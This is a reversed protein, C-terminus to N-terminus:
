SGADLTCPAGRAPRATPRLLNAASMAALVFVERNIFLSAPEQAFMQLHDGDRPAFAPFEAFKRAAL